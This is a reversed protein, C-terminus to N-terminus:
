YENARINLNGNEVWINENKGVKNAYHHTGNEPTTAFVWKDDDLEGSEFEDNFVLKMGNYERINESNNKVPNVSHLKADAWDGHDSSTSDGGDNMVLRLTHAGEVNVRVYEMPTDDEMVKSEYRKENDVYVEFQLSAETNFVERDVGVWTTFYKYELESIDYVIESYARAGLGKDFKVFDGNNDTLTIVNKGISTDKKPMEDSGVSASKWDLDSLYVSDSEAYTRETETINSQALIFLLVGISCLLLCYKKFNKKITM